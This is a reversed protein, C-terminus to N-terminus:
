PLSIDVPLGPHLGPHLGSSEPVKAEVMFVLRDRSGVSYIVPPTFEAERAVFSVTGQIPDPMGDAQVLVQTGMQLTTLEAQPVFFRVKLGDQPLVAVVPAGLTVFEGVRHFVEEIRGTTRSKVRRQDLQWQMQAVASQASDVAANAADRTADRGALQAVQINKEARVVSAKAAAYETEVQDGRAKSATGNIVLPQWRKREADALALQARAQALDAELAQIEERRAGTSLDRANAQAQSLKANAEQLQNNQQDTDLAFLETNPTVADGERVAMAEIWGPQPSNIYLYEAEVYGVYLGSATDDSCGGILVICGVLTSYLFRSLPRHTM